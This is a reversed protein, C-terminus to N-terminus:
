LEERWINRGNQYIMKMSVFGRATIKYTFSAWTGSSNEYRGTEDSAFMYWESADGVGDLYYERTWTGVLSNEIEDEGSSTCSVLGLVSALMLGALCGTLFVKEKKM